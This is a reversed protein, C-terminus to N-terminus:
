EAFDGEPLRMSGHEHLIAWRGGSKELVLTLAGPWFHRALVEAAPSIASKMFVMGLTTKEDVSSLTSQFESSTLPSATASTALSFVWGPLAM